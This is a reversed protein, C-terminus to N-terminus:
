FGITLKVYPLIPFLTLQKIEPKSREMDAYLYFPNMHNYLNYVGVSWTRKVHTKQKMFDVGVDLRHYSPTRFNNRSNYNPLWHYTGEERYSELMDSFQPIKNLALTVTNGTHFVWAANLNIRDTLKYFAVASVDWRSDYKYPFRKGYNLNKFKRDAKSLTTGLWGTLKGQQKQIMFEIGKASGEGIEVKDEWSKDVQYFSVGEKYELLNQMEKYYGELSFAYMGPNYFLGLAYQTGKQPPVRETVPLWLDTPMGMTSNTLLHLFQSVQNYSLKSSLRSNFDLQVAIRPQLHGYTKQRSALIAYNMGVNMTVPGMRFEDELYTYFDDVWIKKNGITTDLVANHEDKGYVLNFGPNFVHKIYNVGFRLNHDMKSYYEIDYRVGVDNIGSTYRNLYKDLPGDSDYTEELKQETKFLYRSYNLTINSFVRNTMLYNWRFSSTINGWGFGDSTKYKTEYDYSSSKYDSGAFDKGSYISLYLKNRSNLHHNIKANIDYFYYNPSQSRTIKILPRTIMDMFTRRGSILFSTKSNGVPGEITLKSTIFGISGEGTIKKNNGEKMKIDLVSSLRGGYRAPIGGKYLVFDSIADPNFVSFFGFFHSTNYVPVGDLLILNQDPGGGRVYLGGTGEMGTKVGPTLQLIKILDNEGLLVPSSKVQNMKLSIVGPQATIGNKSRATVVVEQLTNGSPSLGINITTDRSILFELCKHGYGIHSYCIKINGAPVNISYYGYFNSITSKGSHEEYIITGVMQEGSSFDTLTGNISFYKQAQVSHVFLSCFLALIYKRM